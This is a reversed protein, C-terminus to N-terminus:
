VCHQRFTSQVVLRSTAAQPRSAAQPRHVCVRMLGPLHRNQSAEPCRGAGPHCECGGSPLAAPPRHPRLPCTLRATHFCPAPCGACARLAALTYKSLPSLLVAAWLPGSGERWVQLLKMCAAFDGQLLPLPHRNSSCLLLVPCALALCGGRRMSGAAAAVLAMHLLWGAAGRGRGGAAPGPARAAAHGRVPAAPLRHPRRPRVAPQGVPAARRPLRVGADAGAHDVQPSSCHLSAPLAPPDPLARARCRWRQLQQPWSPVPTCSCPQLAAVHLVNEVPVM